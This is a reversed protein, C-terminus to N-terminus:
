LVSLFCEFSVEFKALKIKISWLKIDSRRVNFGLFRFCKKFVLFKFVKALFRPKKEASVFIYTKLRQRAYEALPQQRMSCIASQEMDNTQLICFKATRNIHTSWVAPFMWSIYVAVSYSWPGLSSPRPSRGSNGWRPGPRLGAALRMKRM